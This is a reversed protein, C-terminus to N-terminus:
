KKKKKKPTPKRAEEIAALEEKTLSVRKILFKTVTKDHYGDDFERRVTKAADEITEDCCSYNDLLDEFDVDDDEDHICFFVIGERAKEEIILKELEAKKKLLEAVKSM